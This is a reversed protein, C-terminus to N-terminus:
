FWWKGLILGLLFAAMVWTTAPHGKFWDVVDRAKM